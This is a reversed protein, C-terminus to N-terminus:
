QYAATKTHTQWERNCDLSHSQIQHMDCLSHLPTCLPSPTPAECQLGFNQREHHSLLSSHCLHKLAFVQRHKSVTVAICMYIIHMQWHEVSHSWKQAQITAFSCSVFHCVTVKNVWWGTSLAINQTSGSWQVEKGFAVDYKDMYRWAHTYSHAQSRTHTHTCMSPYSCVSQRSHVHM